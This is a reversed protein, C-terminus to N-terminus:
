RWDGILVFPAWYFPAAYAPQKLLAVQAAQLAQAKPKGAKLGQYFETMLLKTSADSVSWLSAVLSRCGAFSFADALSRLDSGDPDREGLATQCASLTALSLDGQPGDLRTGTIESVSLRQGRALTLYSSRPERCDLVGHTALHLFATAPARVAALKDGTAQEGVYIKAGPFLQGLAEVEGAAAPLSGDPNGFAVLGGTRAAPPALVQDLDVAKALTVVRKEEILYPGSAPALAGFPLYMLNGYPIVALTAKGQLQLPAILAAHLRSAEERGDQRAILKRRYSMVLGDLQTRALKVERVSLRDSAAEMVYLQDATPFYQVVLTDAPIARQLKAFNLPRVDLRAFEPYKKQLDTVTAYYSKRSDALQRSALQLRAPDAGTAQLTAVAQEQAQLQQQGEVARLVLGQDAPTVRGKLDLMTFTSSSELQQLRGVTQFAEANQGLAVQNNVLAEYIPRNLLRNLQMLATGGGFERLTGELIDVAQQLAASAEPRRQQASRLEGLRRWYELQADRGPLEKLEALLGESAQEWGAPKVERYFELGIKFYWKWAEASAARRLLPRAEALQEEVRAAPQREHYLQHAELIPLYALLESVYGPAPTEAALLKRATALVSAADRVGSRQASLVYFELLWIHGLRFPAGPLSRLLRFDANLRDWLEQYQPEDKVKLKGVGQNWTRYYVDDVWYLEAFDAPGAELSKLRAFARDHRPLIQSIPMGPNKLLDRDMQHSEILFACVDGYVGQPLPLAEIKALHHLFPGSLRGRSSAQVALLRTALEEAPSLPSALLREAVALAEAARGMGLLCTAAARSGPPSQQYGTVWDGNQLWSQAVVPLSLLLLLFLARM